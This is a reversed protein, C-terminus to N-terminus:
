NWSNVKGAEMSKGKGPCKIYIPDYVRHKNRELKKEKSCHKHQFTSCPQLPCEYDGQM